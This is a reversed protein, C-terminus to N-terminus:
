LDYETHLARQAAYMGPLYWVFDLDLLKRMSDLQLTVALKWLV